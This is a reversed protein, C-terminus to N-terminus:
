TFFLVPDVFHRLNSTVGPEELRAQFIMLALDWYWYGQGNQPGTIRWHDRQGVQRNRSDSRVRSPDDKVLILVCPRPTARVNTPLQETFNDPLALFLFRWQIAAHSQDSEDFRPPQQTQIQVRRDPLSVCARRLSCFGSAM